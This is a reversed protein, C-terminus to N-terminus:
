RVYKGTKVFSDLVFIVFIGLFAYLILEETVHGTKDDKQDELLRIMYNIKDLLMTDKAPQEQIYPMFQAQSPNVTYQIEPQNPKFSPHPNPPLPAEFLPTISPTYSKEPPTKTLVANPVFDALEGDDDKSVISDFKDHPTVKRLTRNMKKTEIDNCDFTSAWDSLSM